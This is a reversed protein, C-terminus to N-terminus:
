YHLKGPGLHFHTESLDPIPKGPVAAHWLASASPLPGPCRATATQDLAPSPSVTLGIVLCRKWQLWVGLIIRGQTKFQLNKPSLDPRYSSFWVPMGTM